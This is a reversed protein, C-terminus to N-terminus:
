LLRYDLINLDVKEQNNWINIGLNFIIDIKDAVKLEPGNGSLGNFYIASLNNFIIKLHNQDKGVKKVQKVEQSRLMFVPRSNGFGFPELKLIKKVLALSIDQDIFEWDVVVEPTFDETKIRKDAYELLTQYFLNINKKPLSLGGARAHGGFTDLLKAGSEFANLLHYSEISRASGKALSGQEDLVITPRSYKEMIRGAVIGVLGPSWNKHSVLIVKKQDLKKVQIQAEAEELIRQTESQRSTNQQEMEQAFGLAQNEDTTTLLSYAGGAHLIRGPANLRPGIKFGITGPNMKDPEIGALKYIAKLGVSRTKQLVILGYYVLIRNEDILPVMDAVTSIAVLDLWWKLQNSGIIKPFKQSIAQALKFVLGCASLEKFPYTDDKQRPNIVLGRPIKSEQILHHDIVITDLGLQHCYEIENRSTIGMDVSILLSIGDQRLKDVGRESLGYGELRAPIYIFSELGLKTLINTLLASSTIGDADYDGFVGVKENKERALILREVVKPMNKLLFPDHLHHYNPHLFDNKKLTDIHRNLLIQDILDDTKRESLRWRKKAGNIIM